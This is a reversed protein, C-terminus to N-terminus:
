LLFFMIILLLYEYHDQFLVKIYKGLVKIIEKRFRLFILISMRGFNQIKALSDEVEDEKKVSSLDLFVPVPDSGTSVEISDTNKSSSTKGNSEGKGQNGNNNGYWYNKAASYGSAMYTFPNYDSWSWRRFLHRHMSSPYTRAIVRTCSTRLIM